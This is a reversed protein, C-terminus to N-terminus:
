HLTLLERMQGTSEVMGFHRSFFETYGPTWQFDAWYAGRAEETEFEVELVVNNRAGFQTSYVRTTLGRHEELTVLKLCWAILDARRGPKAVWTSREVIM